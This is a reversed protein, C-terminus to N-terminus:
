FFSVVQAEAFLSSLPSFFLENKESNCYVGGLAIKERLPSPPLFTQSCLIKKYAFDVHRSKKQGLCKEHSEEGFFRPKTHFKKPFAKLIVWASIFIDVSTNQSFIHTIKTFRIRENLFM